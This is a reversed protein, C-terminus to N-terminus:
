AADAKTRAWLLCVLAPILLLFAAVASPSPTQAFLWYASVAAFPPELLKGASMWHINLVHTLRLFLAHGLLTPVITLLIVAVWGRNSIQMLSDARGVFVLHILFCAAAVFFTLSTLQASPITEQGKKGAIIYISYFVASVLACLDALNITKLSSSLQPLFLVVVSSLGFLYSVVVPASIRDRLVFWSFVSTTVPNLCFLIVTNAISTNQAAYFYTWFHLYLFVGAVIGHLAQPKLPFKFFDRPIFLMRLILVSALLRWVGLVEISSESWRTIVAAQSLALISLFYLALNM